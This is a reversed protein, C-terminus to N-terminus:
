SSPGGVKEFILNIRSLYGLIKSNKVIKPKKWGKLAHYLIPTNFQSMHRMKQTHNWGYAGGGMRGVKHFNTQESLKPRRNPSVIQIFNWSVQVMFVGM